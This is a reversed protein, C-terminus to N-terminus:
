FHVGAILKRGQRCEPPPSSSQVRPWFAVGPSTPSPSVALWLTIKDAKGDRERERKNESRGEPIM